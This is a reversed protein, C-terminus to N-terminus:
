DHVLLANLESFHCHEHAPARTLALNREHGALAAWKPQASRAAKVAADVDAETGQTVNAIAKGTASNTVKFTQGPATFTGDIFHGFGAEHRTLWDRVIASDEPAPGYDMSAFIEKITM